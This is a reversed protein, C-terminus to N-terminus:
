LRPERAKAGWARWRMNAVVLMVIVIGGQLAQATVFPVGETRELARFATNMLAFFLAAATVGAPHLRGLLAVAIGTFGFPADGSAAYLERSVGALETGGALGALAGSLLMASVTVRGTDIGAFRAAVPNEGVAGLRFGWVTWRLLVWVVAVAALALLLGAHLDGGPLAPLTAEPRIPLSKYEGGPERMPGSLLYRLLLLAVFNLLLSSLVISVGRWRELLAAVGALLAGAVASAALLAPGAVAAPGGLYIGAAAAAVAGAVYQGQAGINWVAARFAVAVALGTFVLPCADTLTAAWQRYNRGPLLAKDYLVGLLRDPAYGMLALTVLAGALCILAAVVPPL